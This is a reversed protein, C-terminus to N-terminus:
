VAKLRARFLAEYRSPPRRVGCCKVGTVIRYGFFRGPAARPLTTTKKRGRSPRALPLQIPLARPWVCPYRLAVDTYM